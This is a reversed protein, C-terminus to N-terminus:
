GEAQSPSGVSITLHTVVHPVHAGVQSWADVATAVVESVDGTLKTAYHNPSAATGRRHAAAIAEEIHTMHDDPDGGDLLPYLSWQAAATIGTPELEVPAPDPLGTVSLDCALEGPCGRSFLAHAVVHGGGSRRSAAALVATLYDALRQEAPAEQAGVYTSVEETELVLGHTLGAEEVDALAGLIVDVFADTHPHISFRLGIGLEAPTAGPRRGRATPVSSPRDSPATPETPPTADTQTTM